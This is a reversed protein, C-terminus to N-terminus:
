LVPPINPWVGNDLNWIWAPIKTDREIKEIIEPYTPDSDSYLLYMGVPPKTDTLLVSALPKNRMNFRLGKLFSRNDTILKEILSLEEVTECPIWNDNVLMLGVEEVTASNAENISATAIMMMHSKEHEEKLAFETSFRKKVQTLAKDDIYLNLKPAHKIVIRTNYRSPTFDKIEGVIVVLERKQQNRSRYRSLFANTRRDTDDAHDANFAEPIYLREGLAMKKSIKKSAAELLRNRVSFWSRKGQFSPMWRHLEADHWLLHLLGILTLKSTEAKVTPNTNESPKPAIRGGAKSLSFDFKLLTNGDPQDQIARGMVEGLGSLGAPPEFHECGPDHKAGTGPMRKVLYREDFRAIYMETPVLQCMCLPRVKAAHADALYSEFDESDSSLKSNRIQYDAM